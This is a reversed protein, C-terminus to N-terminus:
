IIFPGLLGLKWNELLLGLLIIIIVPLSVLIVCGITLLLIKTIRM